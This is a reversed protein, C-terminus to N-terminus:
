FRDVRGHHVQGALMGVQEVIAIGQQVAANGLDRGTFIKPGEPFLSPPSTLLHAPFLDFVGGDTAIIKPVVSRYARHEISLYNRDYMTFQLRRGVLNIAPPVRDIPRLM